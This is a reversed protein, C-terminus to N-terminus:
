KIVPTNIKQYSGCKDCIRYNHKPIDKPDLYDDACSEVFDICYINRVNWNHDCGKQLHEYKKLYELQSKYSKIIDIKPLIREPRWDDNFKNSKGLNCLECLVQLNSQDLELDPRLSRPEIHDVHLVGKNGCLMCQRKNDRLVKYRLKKWERSEYFSM